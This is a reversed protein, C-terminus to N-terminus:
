TRFHRSTLISDRVQIIVGSFLMNTVMFTDYVLDAANWAWVNVPPQAGLSQRLVSVSRQFISFKHLTWTLMLFALVATYPNEVSGYIRQVGLLISALVPNIPKPASKGDKLSPTLGLMHLQLHTTTSETKKGQPACQYAFHVMTCVNCACQYALIQAHVMMSICYYIIYLTTSIFCFRDEYTVFTTLSDLAANGPTFNFATALYSTFVILLMILITWRCWIPGLDTRICM